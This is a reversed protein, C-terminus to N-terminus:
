EEKKNADEESEASAAQKEMFEIFDKEDFGWKFDGRKHVQSM